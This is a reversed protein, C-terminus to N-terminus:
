TDERLDTPRKNRLHRETCRTSTSHLGQLMLWLKMWDGRKNGDNLTHRGVSAFKTGHGPGLEANFDGGVIPMYKKYNTTHKEIMKCMQEVHHDADGSHAFYVSMLKIRQRNAVITATIAWENFFETDVIRQRWKKNLVIGVGHKNDYKGAGMKLEKM